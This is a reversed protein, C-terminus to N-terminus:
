KEYWVTVLYEGDAYSTEVHKRVVRGREPCVSGLRPVDDSVMAQFMDSSKVLIERVKPDHTQLEVPCKPTTLWALFGCVLGALICGGIVVLPLM